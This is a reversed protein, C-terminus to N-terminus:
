ADRVVTRRMPATMLALAAVTITPRPEIAKAWNPIIWVIPGASATAIKTVSM